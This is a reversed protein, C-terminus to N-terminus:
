RQQNSRGEWKVDLSSAVPHSVHSLYLFSWDHSSPLHSGSPDNYPTNLVGHLSYQSIGGGAFDEEPLARKLTAPNETPQTGPLWIWSLVTLVLLRPDRTSTTTLTPQSAAHWQSHQEARSAVTNKGQSSCCQSTSQFKKENKGITFFM